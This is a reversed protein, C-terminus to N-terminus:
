TYVNELHSTDNVCLVMPGNPGYEIVNLAANNVMFRTVHDDPLSLANAIVVRVIVDHTVVAVMQGPHAAVIREIARLGRERVDAYHEGEPMQVQAPRTLWLELLEGYSRAVDAETLGEWEGHHIEALDPDTHPVLGHPEAVAVATQLARCLPSAYVAALPATRLRGGIAAAQREGMESLAIDQQGQIIGAQNWLSQGHRIVLLRTTPTTDSSFGLM